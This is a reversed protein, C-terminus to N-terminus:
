FHLKWHPVFLNRNKNSLNNSFIKSILWDPSTKLHVLNIQNLCQRSLYLVFSKHDIRKWKSKEKYVTAQRQYSFRGSLWHVHMAVLRTIRQEKHSWNWLNRCPLFIQYQIFFAHSSLSIIVHLTLWRFSGLALVDRYWRTGQRTMDLKPAPRYPWHFPGVLHAWFISRDTKFSNAEFVNTIDQQVTYSFAWTELNM